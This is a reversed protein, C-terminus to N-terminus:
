RVLKLSRRPTTRGTQDELALRLSLTVRRARGLRRRAKAGFRLRMVTTGATSRVVSGRAVRVARRGLGLSRAVRASVHLAGSAKCAAPCTVRVSVGNRLVRRLRRGTLM